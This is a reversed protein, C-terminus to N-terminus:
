AAVASKPVVDQEMIKEMEKMDKQVLVVTSGQVTAAYQDRQVTTPKRMANM